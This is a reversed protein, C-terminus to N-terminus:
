PHVEEAPQAVQGALHDRILRPIV